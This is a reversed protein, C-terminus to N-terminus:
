NATGSSSDNVLTILLATNSADPYGSWVVNEAIGDGASIGQPPYATIRANRLLLSGSLNGSGTLTMTLAQISVDNKRHHDYLTDGDEIRAATFTPSTMSSRIAAVVDRSGVKRIPSFGNQVELTFQRNVEHTDSNWSIDSADDEAIVNTALAAFAVFTPTGASARDASAKFAVVDIEITAERGQQATIRFSPFFCGTFIESQGSDGRILEITHYHITTGREYKHTYPGSGTTSVAAAGMCGLLWLGLGDYTLPLTIKGTVTNNQRIVASPDPGSGVGPALTEITRYDYQEVFGSVSMPIVWNTRSVPTGATSEVAIGVATTLPSRRAM